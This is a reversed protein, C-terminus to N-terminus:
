GIQSAAPDGPVVGGGMAGGKGMNVTRATAAIKKWLMLQRKLSKEFNAYRRAIPILAKDFKKVAGHSKNFGKGQAGGGTRFVNKSSASMTGENVNM